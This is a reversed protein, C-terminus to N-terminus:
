LYVEELKLDEFFEGHEIQELIANIFIRWERLKHSQRQRIIRRLAQYNTCCIRCQLFGEPLNHKAREFDGKEIWLNVTSLVTHSILQSFDAGTLKRKMLTHMTSASQWEMGYKYERMQQWWYRPATIDIWVCVQRLFKSESDDKDFLKEAVQPMEEVPKNYSLSLGILAEEYGCEKLIQVKM